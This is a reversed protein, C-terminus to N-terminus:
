DASGPPDDLLEFGAATWANMGGELDVIDTYGLAALDAAAQGSMDGSRCYLVIPADLDDPLDKWAAIKEFNVFADTNEIHNEYPVHVNVVPADPHQDLYEAFASPSLLTPSSSEAVGDTTTGADDDSSSSSCAAVGLLVAFTVLSWRRSILDSRYPM